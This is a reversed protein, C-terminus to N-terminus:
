FLGGLEASATVHYKSVSLDVDHDIIVLTILTFNILITM